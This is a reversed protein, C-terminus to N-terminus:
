EFLEEEYDPLKETELIDELCEDDKLLNKSGTLMSHWVEDYDFVSITTFNKEFIDIKAYEVLLQLNVNSITYLRFYFQGALKSVRKSYVRDSITVGIQKLYTIISEVSNENICMDVINSDDLKTLAVEVNLGLRACEHLVSGFVLSGRVCLDEKNLRIGM